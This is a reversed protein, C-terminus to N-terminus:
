HGVASRIEDGIRQYSHESGYSVVYEATGRAQLWYQEDSLSLLDLLLAKFKEYDPEDLWWKWMEQNSAFKPPISHRFIDSLHFPCFMVKQKWLLAEWLSTSSQSIAVRSRRILRYTSFLSERPVIRVDNGFWKRFYDYEIELNAGIEKTRPAIVLRLNSEKVFRALYHCLLDNCEMQIRLFPSDNTLHSTGASSALCIDYDIPPVSIPPELQSFYFGGLFPGVPHFRIGTSSESVGYETFLDIDKKGFCYIGYNGHCNIEKKGLIQHFMPRYIEHRIPDNFVANLITIFTIDPYAKALDVMYNVHVFEIVIRPKVEAIVALSYSKMFSDSSCMSIITRMIIAPRVLIAGGDTPFRVDLSFWRYNTLLVQSLEKKAASDIILVECRSPLHVRFKIKGSFVRALLKGFQRMTEFLKM